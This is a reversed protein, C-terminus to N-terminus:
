IMSDGDGGELLAVLDAKKADSEYEIEAADLAAKLEAVNMDKPAKGGTKEPKPAPAAKKEPAPKLNIPAKDDDKDAKIIAGAELLFQTETAEPDFMVRNGPKIEIIQPPLPAVGKAKDGAKGPKVTMPILHRAVYKIAKAM